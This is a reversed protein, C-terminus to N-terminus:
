RLLRIHTLEDQTMGSMRETYNTATESLFAKFSCCLDDAGSRNKPFPKAYYRSILYRSPIAPGGSVHLAASTPVTQPFVVDAGAGVV